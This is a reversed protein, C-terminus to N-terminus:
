VRREFGFGLDLFGAAGEEFGELGEEGGAVGAELEAVGGRSVVLHAGLDFAIRSRQPAQGGQQGSAALVLSRVLEDVAQAVARIRLM